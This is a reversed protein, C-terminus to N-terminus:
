CPTFARPVKDTQLLLYFLLNMVFINTPGSPLSLNAEYFSCRNVKNLELHFWSFEQSEFHCLFGTESVNVPKAYVELKLTM